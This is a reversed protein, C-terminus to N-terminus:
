YVDNDNDIVISESVCVNSSFRSRLNKPWGSM